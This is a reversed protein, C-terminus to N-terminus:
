LRSSLQVASCQARDQEQLEPALLISMILILMAVFEKTQAAKLIPLLNRGLPLGLPHYLRLRPVLGPGWVLLSEARLGRGGLTDNQAPRSM